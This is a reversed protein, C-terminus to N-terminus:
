LLICLIRLTGGVDLAVQSVLLGSSPVQFKEVYVDLHVVSPHVSVEHPNIQRDQPIQKGLHKTGFAQSIIDLQVPLISQSYFHYLCAWM